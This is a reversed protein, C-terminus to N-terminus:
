RWLSGSALGCGFYPSSLVTSSAPDLAFLLENGTQSSWLLQGCSTERIKEFLLDIPPGQEFSSVALQVARARSTAGIPIRDSDADEYAMMM